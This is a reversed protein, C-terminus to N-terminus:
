RASVTYTGIMRVLGSPESGKVALGFGTRGSGAGLESSEPDFVSPEEADTISAEYICLYGREAATPKKCNASYPGAPPIMEVKSPEIPLALPISFSVVTAVRVGAQVEATTGLEFDGSETQGSPLLSNASLGALGTEGRAGRSGKPGEPGQPGIPGLEGQYGRPGRAGRLKKLVKPNIQRTSNILYHSAALAGGSMSLLLALTAAVNAYSLRRRM